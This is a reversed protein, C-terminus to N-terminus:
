HKEIPIRDGGSRTEIRKRKKPHKKQSQKWNTKYHDLEM